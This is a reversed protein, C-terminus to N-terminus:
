STSRGLNVHCRGCTSLPHCRGCAPTPTEGAAVPVPHTAPPKRHPKQHCQNCFTKAVNAVKRPKATEHCIRCGEVGDARLNASHAPIISGDHGAPRTLHCKSCFANSRAYEAAANSAKVRVMGLSYSHCRNCSSLDTLAQKGHEQLWGSALHTEPLIREKHCTECSTSVGRTEHCEVCTKMGRLRFSRVMNSRAKTENWSLFLGDITQEREAVRGHAVGAHCETCNIGQTLHKAHPIKLDGSGGSEWQESHCQLCLSSGVPQALEIPLYYKGTVHQYIQKLAGLKHQVFAQPSPGIHCRVCTVQSHDSVKWTYFEPRMEHCSKCFAPTSTAWTVGGLLALSVTALGFVMGLQRLRTSKTVRLHQSAETM